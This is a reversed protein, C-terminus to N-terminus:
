SWVVEPQHDRTDNEPMPLMVGTKAWRDLADDAPARGRSVFRDVYEITADVTVRDVGSDPMRELAASFCACAADALTRNSLGDRAAERWLDRAQHVADTVRPEFGNQHVLIAAVATAVRWWPAPLADLMRLELWGRPRVPPFLTTLHYELDDATPWGIAHGRDLWDGFALPTLVPEASGDDSRVLMVNAALAYDAWAVRCGSGNACDAPSTRGRDIDLWTALRTSRQGSPRETGFPSNAFAAALVPALDHAFHWRHELDDRDGLGLNVQTAATSCMMTRGAPGSADFYAEMADYRPSHVTRGRRPGPELGISVLGVGARALVAGFAAADASMADCIGSLLRPASSLELQGGPEVTIRSANPLAGIAACAQQVADAPAPRTPDALDVTIWELEVGVQHDPSATASDATFGHDAVLRRAHDRTLVPRPSPM